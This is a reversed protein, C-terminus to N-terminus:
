IAIKRFSMRRLISSVFLVFIDQRVESMESIPVMTLSSALAELLPSVPVLSVGGTEVWDVQLLLLLLLLPLDAAAPPLPWFTRGENM